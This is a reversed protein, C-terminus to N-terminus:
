LFDTKRDSGFETHYELYGTISWVWIGIRSGANVAGTMSQVSEVYAADGGSKSNGLRDKLFFGFAVAAVAAVIVVALIIKKKKSM